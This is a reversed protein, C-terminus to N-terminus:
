LKGYLSLLAGHIHTLLFHSEVRLRAAQSFRSVLADDALLRDLAAAYARADRNPVELGTEDKLNVWNVGSGDITFTVPVAGCFMAEALAIGFAENKTVSPFAFIRAARLYTGIEDDLIRGMFHVNALGAAEAKLRDTEPGVGCVLLQCPSKVLRMAQILYELGKYPVHRGLTIVINDGYRERLQAATIGSAPQMTMKPLNIVNPIVVCKAAHPKLYPSGEIYNPSTAIIRNARRLMWREIPKYFFHIAGHVTIDSHWHVVFATRKPLFLLVLLSTLPNPVHLQVVDPRFERLVRRFTRGFHFSVQQRAVERWLGVRVVRIGDVTDAQNQPSDNYCLVMREMEPTGDVISKCVDEIGGLHPSYYNLIHLIRKGM